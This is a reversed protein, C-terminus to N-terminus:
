AACPTGRLTESRTMLEVSTLLLPVGVLAGVVTLTLITGAAFLVGGVVVGTWDIRPICTRPANM